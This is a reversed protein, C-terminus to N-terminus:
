PKPITISTGSSDGDPDHNEAPAWSLGTRIVSTVTFTVSSTRNRIGTRSVTCAGGAATTCSATGTAGSSWSGSVAAGALPAHTADHIAITVTATWTGVQRTASRDLDGVHLTPPPPPPEVGGCDRLRFSAVRTQWPATGITGYYEQTYWFTCDDIPDVSMTSYDGWRGSSHTQYGTGARVILEDSTISGLADSELRGAVVVSPFVSTSSSSFGLAMDGVRNMAISGMWRHTADPAAQGPVQAHVVRPHVSSGWALLLMAICIGLAGRAASWRTM